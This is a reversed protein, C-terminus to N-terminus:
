HPGDGGSENSREKKEQRAPKWAIGPAVHIDGRVQGRCM